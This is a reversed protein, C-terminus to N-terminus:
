GLKVKGPMYRGYVVEGSSPSTAARFEYGDPYRQRLDRATHAARARSNHYSVVAWRDPHLNRLAVLIEDRDANKRNDYRFDSTREPPEEFHIILM